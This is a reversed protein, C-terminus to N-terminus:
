YIDHAKLGHGTSIFLLPLDFLSYRFDEMEVVSFIIDGSGCHWNGGIKTPHRSVM